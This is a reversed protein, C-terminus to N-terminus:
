NKSYLAIGSRVKVHKLIANNKMGGLFVSCEKERRKVDVGSDTVRVFYFWPDTVFLDSLIAVTDGMKAVM